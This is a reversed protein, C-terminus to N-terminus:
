TVDLKGNPQLYSATLWWSKWFCSIFYQYCGDFLLIWVQGSLLTWPALMPGVQTRDAGSPGWTQGMFRTILTTWNWWLHYTWITAWTRWFCRQENPTPRSWYHLCNTHFRHWEPSQYGHPSHELDHWGYISPKTCSQLIVMANAISTSCDQMLGDIHTINLQDPDIDTSNRYGRKSVHNLKLGSM